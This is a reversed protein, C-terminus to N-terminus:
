LTNIQRIKSIPRKKMLDYVFKESIKFKKKKYEITQKIPIFCYNDDYIELYKCNFYSRINKMDCISGELLFILDEYDNININNFNIDKPIDIKVYEKSCKKINNNFISNLEYINMTHGICFVCHILDGIKIKHDIIFGYIYGEIQPFIDESESKSQFM